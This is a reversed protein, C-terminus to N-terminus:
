GRRAARPASRPRGCRAPRARSRSSRRSGPPWPGARARRSRGAGGRWRRHAAVGVLQGGQPRHRRRLPHHELREVGVELGVAARGVLHGLPAQGRELRGALQGDREGGADEDADALGPVVADVRELGDGRRVAAPTVHLLDDDLVEQGLRARRHEPGPGARGVVVEVGDGQGPQDQRASTWRCAGGFRDSSKPTSSSAPMSSQPPTEGIVASWTLGSRGQGASSRSRSTM